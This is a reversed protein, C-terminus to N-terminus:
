CCLHADPAEAGGLPHHQRELSVRAEGADRAAEVPPEPREPHELPAVVPDEGRAAVLVAVLNPAATFSFGGAPVSEISLMSPSPVAGPPM